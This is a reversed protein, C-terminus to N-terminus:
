VGDLELARRRSHPRGPQLSSLRRGRWRRGAFSVRDLAPAAFLAPAALALHARLGRRSLRAPRLAAVGVARLERHVVPERDISQLGCREVGHAAGARRRRAPRDPKASLAALRGVDLALYVIRGRGRGAEVVLPLGGSEVLASGSVAIATQAWVGAIAAARE